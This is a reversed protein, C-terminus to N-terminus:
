WAWMLKHALVREGQREYLFPTVWSDNTRSMRGFVAAGKWVVVQADLERPPRNVIIDKAYGPLMGQLNEELYAGLGPTM